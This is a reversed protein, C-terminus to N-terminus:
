GKRDAWAQALWKIQHDVIVKLWGHQTYKRASTSVTSAVRVLEAGSRRVARAYLHDEGYAVSADFGGLQQHLRRPLCFAQDGFPAKFCTSRLRAGFENLRMLWGGDFFRLDFYLMAWPHRRLSNRLLQYSNASLRTDAHIFWLYTGTAVKAGYNLAAARGSTAIRRWQAHRHGFKAPRDVTSVYILECPPALAELQSALAPFLLEQRAIPVIVSIDFDPVAGFIPEQKAM